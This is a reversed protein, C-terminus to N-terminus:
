GGNQEPDECPMDDGYVALKILDTMRKIEDNLFLYGMLAEFGTAKRYQSITANKATTAPHANRGRRLIEAEKETLNPILKETFAAQAPASVYKVAERNIKKTTSGGSKLLMARIVVEYVADGVYALMLPSLANADIESFGFSEALYKLDQDM